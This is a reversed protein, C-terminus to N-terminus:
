RKDFKATLLYGDQRKLADEIAILANRQNKSMAASSLAVFDRADHPCAAHGRFVKLGTETVMIDGRRLTKDYSLLAPAVAGAVTAEPACFAAIVPKSGASSSSDDSKAVSTARRDRTRAASSPMFNLESRVRGERRPAREAANHGRGGRGSSAALPVPDPAGFIDELFGASAGTGSMGLAIIVFSILKLHKFAAVLTRSSRTM